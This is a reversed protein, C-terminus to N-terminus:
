LIEAFYINKDLKYILFYFGPSEPDLSFVFSSFTFPTSMPEYFQFTLEMLALTVQKM